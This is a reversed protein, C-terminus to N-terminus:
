AGEVTRLGVFVAFAGWVLAVWALLSTWDAFLAAISLGSLVVGLFLAVHGPRTLRSM